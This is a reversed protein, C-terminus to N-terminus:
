PTTDKLAARPQDADHQRAIAIHRLVEDEGAVGSIHSADADLEDALAEVRALKAEANEARRLEQAHQWRQDHLASQLAEVTAAHYLNVVRVEAFYDDLALVADLEHEYVELQKGDADYIAWAVASAERMDPHATMSSDTM